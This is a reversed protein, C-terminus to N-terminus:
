LVNSLTLFCDFIKDSIGGCVEDLEKEDLVKLQKKTLGIYRNKIYDAFEEFSFEMGHRKATPIIVEKIFTKSFVGFEKYRDIEDELKKAVGKDDALLFYFSEVNKLSM